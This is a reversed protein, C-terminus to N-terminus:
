DVIISDGVKAEPVWPFSSTVNKEEMLAIMEFIKDTEIGNIRRRSCTDIADSCTEIRCVGCEEIMDGVRGLVVFVSGGHRGGQFNQM